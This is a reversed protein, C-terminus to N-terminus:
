YGRQPHRSRLAARTYTWRWKYERREREQGFMNDPSCETRKTSNLVNSYFMGSHESVQGAMVSIGFLTEEDTQRERKRSEMEEIM